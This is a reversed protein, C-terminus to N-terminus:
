RTINYVEQIRHKTTELNEKIGVDYFIRGVSLALIVLIPVLVLVMLRVKISINQM